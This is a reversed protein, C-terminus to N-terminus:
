FFTKQTSNIPREKPRGVYGRKNGEKIRMKGYIAM